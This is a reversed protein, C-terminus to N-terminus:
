VGAPVRGHKRGSIKELGAKLDGANMVPFFQVDANLNVFFPEALAPIQSADKMDLVFLASRKGTETFFYSAEPKNGDILAQVTKMLSGDKIAKNGTEVPLTVKMLTRM